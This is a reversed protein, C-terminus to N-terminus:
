VLAQLPNVVKLVEVRLAHLLQQFEGDPLAARWGRLPLDILIGPKELAPAKSRFIWTVSQQQASLRLSGIPLM